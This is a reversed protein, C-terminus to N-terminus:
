EPILGLERKLELVRGAAEALREAPLEGSEVAALIAERVRAQDEVSAVQVLDAGARLAAVAADPVRYTAKVAGSGLDDTIAVGKFRLEDRLLRQVIQPTLAGPTVADYASYLALSLVIAPADEAVAARFPELDRAELSTADLSVTAPGEATDQSAAGLGPFHAPACALGAEECGRIAAATLEASIVADDSFARGGLPSDITAVDAVPFLNLHFGLGALARAAEAAWAQAREPDGTDGIDIAREAPPLEPFTRYVGGEQAAVILPPIRGDTRGAKAIATLLEPSAGNQAGVLVGGIQRQRLEAVIQASTDVGDFGLLLVQDVQGEADLGRVVQGATRSVGPARNREDGGEDDGGDGVFAFWAALAVAAAVVGAFGRRLWIRLRSARMVHNDEGDRMGSVTTM